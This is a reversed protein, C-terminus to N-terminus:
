IACKMEILSYNETLSRYYGAFTPTFLSDVRDDIVKFYSGELGNTKKRSILMTVVNL